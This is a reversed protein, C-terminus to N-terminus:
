QLLQFIKFSRALDDGLYCGVEELDMAALAREEAPTLEKNETPLVDRNGSLM